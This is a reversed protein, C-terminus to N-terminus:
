KTGGVFKYSAQKDDAALCDLCDGLSRKVDDRLSNLSADKAYVDASLWYMVLAFAQAQGQCIRWMSPKRRMSGIAMITNVRGGVEGDKLGALSLLEDSVKEVVSKRM